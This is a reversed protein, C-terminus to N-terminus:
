ASDLKGMQLQAMVLNYYIGRQRLLEDHTGLEARKKKDIVM